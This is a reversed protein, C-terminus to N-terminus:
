ATVGIPDLAAVEKAASPYPKTERWDSLGGHHGAICYAGILAAFRVSSQAAALQRIQQAGAAAHDSSPGHGAMYGQFERAYKRLDHLLGVLACLRGAGFKEVSLAALM